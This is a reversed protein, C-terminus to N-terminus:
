TMHAILIFIIGMSSISFSIQPNKPKNVLCSVMVRSSSLCDTQANTLQYSPSRRRGYFSGMAVLLPPVTIEAVTMQSTPGPIGRSGVLSSSNRSQELAPAPNRFSNSVVLLFLFRKKATILSILPDLAFLPLCPVLLLQITVQM